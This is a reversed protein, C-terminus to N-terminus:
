GSDIKPTVVRGYCFFTSEARVCTAANLSPTLVWPLILRRGCGCTSFGTFESRSCMTSNYCRKEARVESILNRVPAQYKFMYTYSNRSYSEFTAYTLIQEANLFGPVSSNTNFWESGQVDLYLNLDDLLSYDVSVPLLGRSDRLVNIQTRILESRRVDEPGASDPNISGTVFAIFLMFTTILNM